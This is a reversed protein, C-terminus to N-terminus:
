VDTISRYPLSFLVLHGDRGALDNPLPMRSARSQNFNGLFVASEPLQDGTPEGGDRIPVVPGQLTEGLPMWYVLLDPELLESVAGLELWGGSESQLHVAVVGLNEWPQGLDTRIMNESSPSLASPIESMVLDRPRERVAWILIMPWVFFFTWAM